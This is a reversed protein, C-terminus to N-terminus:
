LPRLRCKLSHKLDTLDHRRRGGSWRTFGIGSLTVVLATMMCLRNHATELWLSVAMRSKSLGHLDGPEVSAVQNHDFELDRMDLLLNTGDLEEIGLGGFHATDSDTPDFGPVDILVLLGQGDTDFAIACRAAALASWLSLLSAFRSLRSMRLPKVSFSM